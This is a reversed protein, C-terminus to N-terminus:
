FEARKEYAEVSTFLLMTAHRVRMGNLEGEEILRRVTQGSVGWRKAVQRVSLFKQSTINSVEATKPASTLASPSAQGAGGKQATEKAARKPACTALVNGRKM